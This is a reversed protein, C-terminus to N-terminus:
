ISFLILYYIINCLKQKYFNRIIEIRPNKVYYKVYYKVINCVYFCIFHVNDSCSRSVRLIQGRMKKKFNM